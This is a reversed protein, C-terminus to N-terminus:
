WVLEELIKAHDDTPSLPVLLETHGGSERLTPAKNSQIKVTLKGDILYAGNQQIIKTGTAARFWSNRPITGNITIERKFSADLEGQVPIPDDNIAAGNWSYHFAPRRASNLQYGRMQYGAAKGAETPWPQQLDNLVAFSPGSPLPTVRDGLPPEYGEGRGTRHRAADIFAGQWIMALRVENADFALNVHEPYGVGIARSGAGQIFNRYIVPEKDAVLEMKGQVLGPPLGGAAGKSLYAWIAHIQNETNGGLIDKNVANGEPWFAPMRTGPRLSPPDILYREFWDPKLREYMRTLDIAPIGLSKHGDFTHCSICSLGSAGVLRRGFKADRESDANEAAAHATSDAKEFLAPLAQVQRSDFTPMRTAMYPRVSGKGALVTSIWKSKLKAGVKTLHPPIRGEDGLDAEGVVKYYALRGETPGGKGDRTHCAFCNLQLMTHTIQDAPELPVSWKAKSALSATLAARQAPDLHYDPLGAPLAEALCGGNQTMLSDLSKQKAPRLGSGDDHCAACQLKAFLEKGRAAKAIDLAFSEEDLPRMAEGSHSLVTAPIEQKPINPGRWSVKLSIEGGGDFYLVEISHAGASLKTVGRKETAPHVGWNEVVTKGDISIRSGDDSESYFTYSGTTPVELSGSFRFGFNDGRKHPAITFHDVVGTAAPSGGSLKSPDSLDGEYYQYTVGQVLQAPKKDQSGAQDRLLYMAIATAEAATLNLSPMRGSPRVKTPDLLFAALEPVTTARALNPFAASVFRVTTGDGGAAPEQPSHCAVCGVQHYLEKGQRIRFAEAAVNQVPDDHKLSILYHVLADVTDSKEAAAMGHLLDPMLTGPKENSPNAILSRLYQPTLRNGAASLSPGIRSNLRASAAGASHCAACNLESFLIEGSDVAPYSSLLPGSIPGQHASALPYDAQGHVAIISSLAAAITLWQACRFIESRWM